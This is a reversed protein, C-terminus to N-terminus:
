GSSCVIVAGSPVLRSTAGGRVGHSATSSPTKWSRSSSLFHCRAAYPRKPSRRRSSWAIKSVSSIGVYHALVDLEESLPIEQRKGRQLTLRLLDSLGALMADAAEADRYILTSIGQLTNFLFHPHLQATLAELRSATLQGQLRAAEIERERYRRYFELAHIAAIM